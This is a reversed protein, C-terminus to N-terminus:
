VICDTPLVVLGIHSTSVMSLPYQYYFRVLGYLPKTPPRTHACPKTSLRTCPKTPMCKRACPKTVFTSACFAEPLCSCTGLSQPCVHSHHPKPTSPVHAPSQPPRTHTCPKTSPRSCRRPKTPPCSNGKSLGKTNVVQVDVHMCTM